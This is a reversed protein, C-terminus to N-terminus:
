FFAAETSIASSVILPSTALFEGYLLPIPMGQTTLEAARDFLYSSRTENDKPKKPTPTLLDAIGGLVLSAGLSFL